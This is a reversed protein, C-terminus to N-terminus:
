GFDLMLHPPQLWHNSTCSFTKFLAPLTFTVAVLPPSLYQAQPLASAVLVYGVAPLWTRDDMLRFRDVLRHLSVAQILILVLAGLASPLSGYATLWDPLLAYWVGPYLEPM